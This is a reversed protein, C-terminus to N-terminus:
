GEGSGGGMSMVERVRERLSKKVYVCLFVGVLIQHEM